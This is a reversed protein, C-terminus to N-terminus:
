GRALEIHVKLVTHQPLDQSGVLIWTQHITRVWLRESITFGHYYIDIGVRSSANGHYKPAENMIYWNRLIRGNGFYASM